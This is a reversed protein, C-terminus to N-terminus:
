AKRRSMLTGLGGLGLITATGLVIVLLNHFPSRWASWADPFRPSLSMWGIVLVGCATALMAMRNTARKFILGLLFLGLIG